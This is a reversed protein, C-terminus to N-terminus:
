LTLQYTKIISVTNVPRYPSYRKVYNLNSNITRELVRPGVYKRGQKGGRRDGEGRRGMIATKHQKKKEKHLGASGVANCMERNNMIFYVKYVDKTHLMRVVM